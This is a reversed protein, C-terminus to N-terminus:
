LAGYMENENVVTSCEGSLLMEFNTEGTLDYESWYNWQNGVIDFGFSRLDRQWGELWSDDSGSTIVNYLERLVGGNYQYLRIQPTTGDAWTWVHGGGAAYILRQNGVTKLGIMYNEGNYGSFCDEFSIGGTKMIKKGGMNGYVDLRINNKGNGSGLSGEVYFVLLEANGDGDLDRQCTSIIGDSLQATMPAAHWYGGDDYRAEFGYQFTRNDATSLRPVLQESIFKDYVGGEGAPEEQEDSPPEPEAAEASESGNETEGSSEKSGSQQEENIETAEQGAEKSKSGCGWMMGAAVTVALIVAMKKKM